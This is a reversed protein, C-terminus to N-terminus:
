ELKEAGSGDYYEKSYDWVNEDIHWSLEPILRLIAELGDNLLIDSITFVKCEAIGRTQLAIIYTEKQYDWFDVEPFDNTFMWAVAMWYFALQRHYNFDFFHEKFDKLSYTTKLDVLKVVKNKHDIILRDILSKCSLVSGSKSQVPFDWYIPLENNVLLNGDNFIGYDDQFLLTNALKHNKLNNIQEQVLKWTSTSLVVRYKESQKLYMVYQKLKKYLATALDQVKGTTKGKTQYVKEYAEYTKDAIKVGRKKNLVILECFERQQDTRPTEYELHTFEKNFRNPELIAMHLQKGLEFYSKKEDEIERDMRKKYYLPSVKFWGLSSNSIAKKSYYVKEEM